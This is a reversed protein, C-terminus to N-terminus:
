LAFTYSERNYNAQKKKKIMLNGSLKRPMGNGSARNAVRNLDSFDYARAKESNSILADLLETTSTIM